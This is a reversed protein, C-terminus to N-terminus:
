FGCKHHLKLIRVTDHGDIVAFLRPNGMNNAFAQMHHRVTPDIGTCHQIILLQAPENFLRVIQDGNKGLIALTMKRYKAPGKLLFAATVERGNIALRSTYLDSSEGGWDPYVETEGVIEALADKVKREPVSRLADLDAPTVDIENTGKFRDIMSLHLEGKQPWWFADSEGSVRIIPTGILIPRVTIRRGADSEVFGIVVLHKRGKLATGASGARCHKPSYEVVVEKKGRPSEVEFHLAATASKGRENKESASSFGKCYFDQAFAVLKGEPEETEALLEFLTPAAIAKIKELVSDKLRRENMLAQLHDINPGAVLRSEIGALQSDDLFDIARAANLYWAQVDYEPSLIAIPM